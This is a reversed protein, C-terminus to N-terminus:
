APNAIDVFTVSVGLQEQMVEGLKKVGFKETAHHGCAFYDIGLERAEHTTKESIEGSIYADCNMKAAQTIFSQAGGTCIGIRKYAKNHTKIWLFETNITQKIKDALEDALIATALECIVGVDSPNGSEFLNQTVQLGLLSALQANNGVVEHADLPLHYALLSINHQFLKRIRNGKMGTLCAGEGKWFYGHHVLIAEAKLEIAKNILAECATVGSVVHNIDTQADVQLGNPCYDKFASVNLFESCWKELEVPSLSIQNKTQSSGVMSLM